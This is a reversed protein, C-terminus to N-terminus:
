EPCLSNKLMESWVRSDRFLIKISELVKRIGGGQIGEKSFGVKGKVFNILPSRPGIVGPAFQEHANYVM